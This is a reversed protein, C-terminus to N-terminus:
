VVNREIFRLVSTHLHGSLDTQLHKYCSLCLCVAGSIRCACWESLVRGCLDCELYFREPTASKFSGDTKELLQAGIGFNPSKQKQLQKCWRVQIRYGSCSDIAPAYAIVDPIVITTEQGPEMPLHGQFYVGNQCFNYLRATVINQTDPILFQLPLEVESRSFFRQNPRHVPQHGSKLRARRNFNTKPEM